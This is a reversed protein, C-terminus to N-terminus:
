GAAPCEGPNQLAHSIVLWAIGGAPLRDQLHNGLNVRSVLFIRFGLHENRFALLKRAVPM